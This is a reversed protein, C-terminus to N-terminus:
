RFELGEPADSATWENLQTIMHFDRGGELGKHLKERIAAEDCLHQLSFVLQKRCCSSCSPPGSENAPGKLYNFIVKYKFARGSSHFSPILSM